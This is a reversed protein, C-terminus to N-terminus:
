DGRPGTLRLRNASSLKLALERVQPLTVSDYAERKEIEKYAELFRARDAVQNESMRLSYWGGSQRIASEIWPHSWGSADHGDRFGRTVEEWAEGASPAGFRLKAVQAAAHRIEAVTPFFVCRTICDAAAADLLDDEIDALTRMYVALTAAAVNANPYAAALM